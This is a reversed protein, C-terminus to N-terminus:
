DFCWNAINGGPAADSQETQWSAQVAKGEWSLQWGFEPGPRNLM